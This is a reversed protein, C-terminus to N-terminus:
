SEKMEAAVKYCSMYWKDSFNQTERKQFEKTTYRPAEYAEVVMIEHIPTTAGAMVAQMPVGEQRANMMAEALDAVGKCRDASATTSLAMLIALTLATLTKM